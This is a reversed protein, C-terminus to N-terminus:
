LSVHHAEVALSRALEAALRPYDEGELAALVTAGARRYRALHDEDSLHLILVLPSAAAARLIDAHGPVRDHDHDFDGDSLIVRLPQRAGCEAISEELLAFPFRTGSGIYHMLFRSLEVESRCWQWSCVPVNSYLALRAAGGARLAATVLVQAALTLPNRQFRPDPLSGSVDLYIEVRPGAVPGCQEQLSRRALCCRAERRYYAAMVEPILTADASGAGPLAQIRPSLGEAGGLRRALNPGIWGAARAQEIAALERGSPTLARAWAGPSPEGVLGSLSQVTTVQGPAKDPLPLYRGVVWLFYLLQTFVNDGLSHLKQVLLQAQARSGPYSQEFDARDRGLLEGPAFLWLKERATQLFCDLLSAPRATRHIRLLLERMSRDLAADVLLDTFPDLLSPHPFPLVLREILALRPWCKRIRQRIDENRQQM